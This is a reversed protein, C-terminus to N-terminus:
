LRKWDVFQESVWGPKTEESEIFLWGKQKVTFRQIQVFAGKQLTAIKKHNLGPLKRINLPEKDTEVVGFGSVLYVTNSLEDTYKPLTALEATTLLMEKIKNTALDEYIPKTIVEVQHKKITPAITIPTKQKLTTIASPSVSRKSPYEKVVIKKTQLSRSAKSSIDQNIKRNTGKTKVKSLPARYDEVVVQTNLDNNIVTNKVAKEPGKVITHLAKKEYTKTKGRAPYEVVHPLSDRDPNAQNLVEKIQSQAKIEDIKKIETVQSLRPVSVAVVAKEEIGLDASSKQVAAAEALSDSLNCNGQYSTDILSESNPGSIENESKFTFNQSHGKFYFNYEGGIAKVPKLSSWITCLPDKFHVVAIIYRANKNIKFHQIFRYGELELYFDHKAVYKGSFVAQMQAASIKGEKNSQQKKGLEFIRLQYKKQLNSSFISQKKASTTVNAQETLAAVSVKSPQVENSGVQINPDYIVEAIKSVTNVSQACGSIILAGGFM